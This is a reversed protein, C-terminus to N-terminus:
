SQRRRTRTPRTASPLEGYVAAYAAAFRGLHSFGWRHAVEAVTADGRRLDDHAHTLRVRRLYTIPSMGVHRSFGEQLSRVSVGAIRALATVTYPNAPEAHIADTVMRIHRPRATGQPRHLAERYPHDTAHLLAHVLAERLPEHVLPQDVASDLQDLVQTLARFLHLWVPEGRIPLRPSFDIPGPLYDQILEELERELERRPFELYTMDTHAVISNRRPMPPPRYLGAVAPNLRWHRAAEDVHVGGAEVVALVYADARATIVTLDQAVYTRAAYLKGRPRPPLRVDPSAQNRAGAASMEIRSHRAYWNLIEDLDASTFADAKGSQDATTREIM